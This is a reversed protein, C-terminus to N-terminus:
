FTEASNKGYLFGERQLPRLIRAETNPIRALTKQYVVRKDLIKEYVRAIYILLRLPMNPNISSQHEILVVIRGGVVFALDNAREKFLVNDLTADEVPTDPPEAIGWRRTAPKSLQLRTM